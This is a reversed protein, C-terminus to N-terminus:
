NSGGHELLQDGHALGAHGTLVNTCHAADTLNPEKLVKAAVLALTPM